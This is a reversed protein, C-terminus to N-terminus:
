REFYVINPFEERIDMTIKSNDDVYLLEFPDNSRIIVYNGAYDYVINVMKVKRSVRDIVHIYQLIFVDEYANVHRLLVFIDNSIENPFYIAGDKEEIFGEINMRDIWAQWLLRGSEMHYVQVIPMYRFAIAVVERDFNCVMYNKTIYNWVLRNDSKYAIHGLSDIVIGKKNLKYIFPVHKRTTHGSIFIVSDGVCLGGSPAIPLLSITKYYMYHMEKPMFVDIKRRRAAVFLTDDRDLAIWEPRIWEAPGEGRGGLSFLYIGTADFVRVEANERDLVLIRGRSDRAVDAVEGFMEEKAGTMSGVQWRPRMARLRLVVTDVSTSSKVHNLYFVRDFVERSPLLAPDPHYREKGEKKCGILGALFVFVYIHVRKM